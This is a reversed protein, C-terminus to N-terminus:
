KLTSGYVTKTPTRDGKSITPSLPIDELVDFYVADLEDRREEDEEVKFVRYKMWPLRRPTSLWLPSAWKRQSIRKIAFYCMCSIAVMLMFFPFLYRHHERPNPEFKDSEQDPDRPPEDPESIPGNPEGAVYRPCAHKTKWDFAHTGNFSWGFTPNTPEEANHDCIFQISAKQQRTTYIGGHLTVQLPAHRDEANIKPGFKARPSLNPSVAIPVIQTIRDPVSPRNPLRNSVELCIWTGPPCQLEAPLTGDRRPVTPPTDEQLSITIPASTHLKVVPCLDFVFDGVHFSCQLVDGAVILRTLVGFDM